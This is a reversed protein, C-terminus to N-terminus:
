PRFVGTLYQMMSLDFDVPESIEAVMKLMEARHLTGHNLVHFLIQWCPRVEEKGRFMFRATDFFTDENCTALFDNWDQEIADWKIRCQDRTVYTDFDLAQPPQSQARRLWGQEGDMVHVCERQLTGWSYGTDQTFQAETLPMIALDWVRRNEWFNFEFLTKIFAVDFPPPSDTM